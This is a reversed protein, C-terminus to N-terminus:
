DNCFVFKVTQLCIFIQRLGNFTLSDVVDSVFYQYTNESIKELIVFNWVRGVIYAGRMINTKNLNIAVLMEALLQEEPLSDNKTRKFEQIFFFPSEPSKDGRAVMFDVTGGITENNITASLPREYWERINDRRFNVKRLLPIIFNAKLEEETYSSIYFKNEVILDKLFKEEEESLSYEFSFWKEFANEFLKPILHVLKKLDGYEVNAFSIKKPKGMFNENKIQVFICFNKLNKAFFM